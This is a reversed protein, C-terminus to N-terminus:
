PEIMSKWAVRITRGIPVTARGKKLQYNKERIVRGIEMYSDVAVRLPARAEAPLEAMDCRATQYITFAKDLLRSRMKEVAPGFPQELIHEPSTNVEKAWVTPLYVRRIRADIEIDRSINVYQLAVGMLRGAELFRNQQAPTIKSTGHYFVLELCLEAITGAVRAAYLKLQHEDKIPFNDVFNGDRAKLFEVDTKFGELLDYFPKCSLYRTPVLQLASRTSKPFNESIFSEIRYHKEFLDPQDDAYSLDLFETLKSIWKCAEIETEANDVLDDAVRCFSYLLILDIRLRGSFTASALYFSRSKQKLRKVADKIGRIRQLNLESEPTLLARILLAPSPFQPNPFLNPFSQIIALSHDFAVLGFVVLTNTVLFFIAEEVELGDWVYIGLKTKPEITWTGRKLALTDVVWLYLTSLAIPVLTNILPLKLLFQSSLTWLLLIFPIAWLLILALYTSEGARCLPISLIFCLSIAIQVFRSIVKGCTTAQDLFSPHFLPKSLLIYLLSTNYTQIVFFFVEEVPILFLHLGLVAQPPYTWIQNRILYSDWPTASLVAISILFVIKYIDIRQFFPRYLLTLAIGPPINYKLHVMAYDFGM